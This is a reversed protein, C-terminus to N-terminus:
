GTSVESFILLSEGYLRGHRCLPPISTYNHEKKLRSALHPHTTLTEL